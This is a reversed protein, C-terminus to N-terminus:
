SRCEHGLHLELDGDGVRHDGCTTSVIWCLRWCRGSRRRCSRRGRDRAPSACGCRRFRRLRAKLLCSPYRRNEIRLSVQPAGRAAAASSRRRSRRRRRLSRRAAAPASRRCPRCRRSSSRWGARASSSRARAQREEVAAERAGLVHERHHGLDAGDGREGHQDPDAPAIGLREAVAAVGNMAPKPM